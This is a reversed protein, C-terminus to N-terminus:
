DFVESHFDFRVHRNSYKICAEETISVLPRPACVCVAVRKEGRSSAERRMALFIKKMDPRSQNVFPLNNMGCDEIEKATLYCDLALVEDISAVPTNQNGEKEILQSDPAGIGIMSELAFISSQGTDLDIFEANNEENAHPEDGEGEDDDIFDEMSIGLELQDDSIRSPPMATFGKGSMFAASADDRNVLVISDLGSSGSQGTDTTTGIMMSSNEIEYRKTSESIVDMNSMVQPDRATWIFWLKKLEREGWEHEYTLQQAISQMPTVGIGGSLLMVMAYRNSMLDVALSGYPGELLIAIDKKERALKHLSTTWTGRKRIHLTAYQQHPSSSLSIPHWEFISLEPVAIKM